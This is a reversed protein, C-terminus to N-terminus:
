YDDMIIVVVGDAPGAGGSNNYYQTYGAFPVPTNGSNKFSSSVQTFNTTGTGSYSIVAYSNGSVFGMVIQDTNTVNGDFLNTGATMDRVIVHNVGGLPSFLMLHLHSTDATFKISDAGTTPAHVNTITTGGVSGDHSCSNILFAFPLCLLLLLIKKM